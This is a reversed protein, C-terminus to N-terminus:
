SPFHLSAIRNYIEKSTSQNIQGDTEIKLEDSEPSNGHTTVVLVKIKYNTSPRLENIMYHTNRPYKVIPSLEDAESNVTAIILKYRQFKIGPALSSHEDWKLNVSDTTLNDYDLNSIREPLTNCIVSADFSELTVKTSQNNKMYTQVDGHFRVKFLFSSAQPLHDVTLM